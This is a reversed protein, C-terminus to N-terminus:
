LNKAMCCRRRCTQWDMKRERSFPLQSIFSLDLSLTCFIIISMSMIMAWADTKLLTVSHMWIWRSRFIVSWRWLQIASSEPPFFFLFFSRRETNTRAEADNSWVNWYYYNLDYSLIFNFLVISFRLSRFICHNTFTIGIPCSTLFTIATRLLNFQKNIFVFSRDLCRLYMDIFKSASWECCEHWVSAYM